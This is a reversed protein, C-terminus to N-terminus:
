LKQGHSHPFRTHSELWPLRNSIVLPDTIHFDSSRNIIGLPKAAVSSKIITPVDSNQLRASLGQDLPFIHITSRFVSRVSSLIKNGPEPSIRSIRTIPAM